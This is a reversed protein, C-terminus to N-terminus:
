NSPHENTFHRDFMAAAKAAASAAHQKKIAENAATERSASLQAIRLEAAMWKEAHDAQHELITTITQLSRSAGLTGIRSSFLKAMLPALELMVAVLMALGTLLLAFPNSFVLQWLASARVLLGRAPKVYSLNNEITQNFNRELNMQLDRKRKALVDLTKSRRLGVEDAKPDAVIHQPLLNLKSQLDEIKTQFAGAQANADDRRKQAKKYFTGQLPKGSLGTGKVGDEENKMHLTEESAIKAQQDRLTQFSTIEAQIAAREADTSAAIQKLRLSESQDLVAFQAAVQDVEKDLDAIKAADIRHQDSFLQANAARNDADLKAQIDHGYMTEDVLTATALALMVSMVVRTAYLPWTAQHALPLQVLKIRRLIAEGADLWHAHVIAHDLSTITLAAISALAFKIFVSSDELAIAFTGFFVAFLLSFQTTLMFGARAATIKDDYSATQLAAPSVGGLWYLTNKNRTTFSISNTM